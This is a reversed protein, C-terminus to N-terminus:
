RYKCARMDPRVRSLTGEGSSPKCKQRWKDAGQVELYYQGHYFGQMAGCKSFSCMYIYTHLSIYRYIYTYIYIYKYKYKYLYLSVVLIGRNEDRSRLKMELARKDLTASWYLRGPGITGLLAGSKGTFDRNTQAPEGQSSEM